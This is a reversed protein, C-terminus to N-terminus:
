FPLEIELSFRVEGSDQSSDESSQNDLSSPTSNFRYGLNIETQEDVNLGVGTELHYNKFPNDTKNDLRPSINELSDAQKNVAGLYPSIRTQTEVSLNTQDGKSEITLPSTTSSDPVLPAQYLVQDDDYGEERPDPIPQGHALAAFAVFIFAGAILM